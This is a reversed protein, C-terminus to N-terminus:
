QAEWKALEANFHEQCAIKAEEEGICNPFRILEHGSFLVRAGFNDEDICYCIQYLFGMCQAHILGTPDKTFELPKIQM